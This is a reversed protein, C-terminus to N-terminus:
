NAKYMRDLLEEDIRTAEKYKRERSYIVLQALFYDWLDKYLKWADKTAATFSTPPTSIGLAGLKSEAVKLEALLGASM